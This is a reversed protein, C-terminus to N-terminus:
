ENKAERRQETFNPLMELCARVARDVYLATKDTTILGETYSAVVIIDQDNDDSLLRTPERDSYEDQDHAKVGYAIAAYLCRTFMGNARVIKEADFNPGISEMANLSKVATISLGCDILMKPLLLPNHAVQRLRKAPVKAQIDDALDQLNPAQEKLVTAKKAFADSAHKYLSAITKRAQQPARFCDQILQRLNKTTGTNYSISSTPEGTELENGLYHRLSNVCFIRSRHYYLRAFDDLAYEKWKSSNVKEAVALDPMCIIRSDKLRDDLAVAHHGDISNADLTVVEM